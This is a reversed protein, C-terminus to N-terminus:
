PEARELSRLVVAAAAPVRWLADGGPPGIDVLREKSPLGHSKRSGGAVPEVTQLDLNVRPVQQHLAVVVVVRGHAGEPQFAVADRELGRPEAVQRKYVDSAASSRSQTSRPPRRIM